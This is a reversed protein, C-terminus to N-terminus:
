EQNDPGGSQKEGKVTGVEGFSDRGGDRDYRGDEEYKSEGIKELGAEGVGADNGPLM